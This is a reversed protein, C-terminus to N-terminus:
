KGGFNTLLYSPVEGHTNQRFTKYGRYKYKEEDTLTNEDGMLERFWDVTSMATPPLREMTVDVNRQYLEMLLTPDDELTKVIPRVSGTTDVCLLSYGNAKFVVQQLQDTTLLHMFETYSTEKPQGWIYWAENSNSNSNTTTIANAVTVGNNNSNSIVGSSGFALIAAGFSRRNFTNTTTTTTTVEQQQCYHLSRQQLNNNNNSCINDNDNNNNININHRHNKTKTTPRDITISHCCESVFLVLVISLQLLLVRM